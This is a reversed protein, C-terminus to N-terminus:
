FTFFFIFFDTVNLFFLFFNLRKKMENETVIPISPCYCKVGKRRDVVFTENDRLTELRGGKNDIKLGAM